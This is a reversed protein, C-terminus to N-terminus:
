KKGEFIREFNTRSDALYYEVLEYKSIKLLRTLKPLYKDPWNAVEREINSVYQKGAFGLLNGLEEQTMNIKERKSKIFKTVRSM